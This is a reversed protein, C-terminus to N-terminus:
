SEVQYYMLKIKKRWIEVLKQPELPIAEDGCGLIWTLIPGGQMANNDSLNFQNTEFSLEIEGNSLYNITQNEGWQRCSAYQASFGKMHVKILCKDKSLYTGFYGPTLLRFDFDKPLVYEKEKESKFHINEMESIHFLRRDKKTYDYCWLNWNGKNFILQYPAVTRESNKYDFKIIKNDQLSKKLIDWIEKQVEVCPSGIFIIREASDISFHAGGKSDIVPAETGLEKFVNVVEDYLPSGKINDLLHIMVQASKIKDGSSFMAPVRFKPETYIYGKKRKGTSDVYEQIDLPAHFKTELDKLDRWVTTRDISGCKKRLAQIIETQNPRNGSSILEDIFLIREYKDM